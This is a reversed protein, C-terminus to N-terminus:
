KLSSFLQEIEPADKWNRMFRQLDRKWAKSFSAEGEHQQMADLDILLPKADAILINTAKLDGHSIQQAELQAFLTTIKKAMAAKEDMSIAPQLFWSLADVDDVAEALFYAIPQLPGRKIKVVAIPNPTAIGYFLLRHANEWSIMARGPRTSLKLGHLLGKVNYRKIVLKQSGARAAWVTCTNGNKLAQDRGPFSADPDALLTKLEPSDRERSVVAYYGARKKCIFATCERLLKSRRENWRQARARQIQQLLRRSDPPQDWERGTLYCGYLEPVSAEWEPPIQAFFLGLNALSRQQDLEGEVTEVGDGDLSYTVGQSIVFNGFHLDAQCLGAQHHQALVAMMARLLHQRQEPDGEEWAARLSQPEPLQTLIIVPSGADSLRGAYCLEATAIGRSQFARTGDLERQWHLQCRRPDLYLKAFVQQEDLRAQWVERKGPLWRVRRLLHLVRGDDLLRREDLMLAPETSPTQGNSCRM